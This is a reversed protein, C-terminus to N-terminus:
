RDRDTTRRRVPPRPDAREVEEEREREQRARSRMNANRLGMVQVVLSGGVATLVLWIFKRIEEIQDKLAALQGEVRGNIFEQTYSQATVSVVLSWMMWGLIGLLMWQGLTRQTRREICMM